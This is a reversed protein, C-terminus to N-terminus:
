PCTHPGGEAASATRHRFPQGPVASQSRSSGFRDSPTAAKCCVSGRRGGLCVVFVIFICNHCVRIASILDYDLRNFAAM